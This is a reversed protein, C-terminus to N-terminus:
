CDALMHGAQLLLEGCVLYTHCLATYTLVCQLSKCLTRIDACVTMAQVPHIFQLWRFPLVEAAPQPHLLIIAAVLGTCTHWFTCTSACTAHMHTYTYWCAQACPAGALDAADAGKSSVKRISSPRFQVVQRVSPCPSPGQRMDWELLLPLLKLRM